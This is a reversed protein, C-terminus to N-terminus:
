CHVLITLTAGIASAFPSSGPAETLPAAGYEDATTYSAYGLILNESM